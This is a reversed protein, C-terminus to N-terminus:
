YIRKYKLRKKLPQLLEEGSKQTIVIKQTKLDRFIVTLFIAGLISLASMAIFVWHFGYKEALFGGLFAALAQGMAISTDSASWEFGERGKDIHRTFIAYWAPLTMSFGLGSLAELIYIEFPLHVFLYGLPVISILISGSILLSFDYKENTKRDIWKAFGLQLIARFFLYISSAIGVIELTGGIIQKTVFIAFVPAAIGAASFIAFDSLILLKVVKNM